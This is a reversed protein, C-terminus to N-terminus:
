DWSPLGAGGGVDVAAPQLLAKLAQAGTVSPAAAAAAGKGGRQKEAKQKKGGGQQQRRVDVVKLM